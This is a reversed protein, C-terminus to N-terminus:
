ANGERDRMDLADYILGLLQGKQLAKDLSVGILEEGMQVIAEKNRTRKYFEVFEMKTPKVDGWPPNESSEVERPDSESPAEPEQQQAEPQSALVAVPQQGRQKTILRDAVHSPFGARDGPQYMGSSRLFVVDVMREKPIKNRAVERDAEPSRKPALRVLGRGLLDEAVHVPFGVREDPQYVDFAREVIVDQIAM